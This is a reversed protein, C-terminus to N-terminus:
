TNGGTSGVVPIMGFLHRLINVFCAICNYSLILAREHLWQQQPLAVLIVCGSHTNTAKPIWCAIRTRKIKIQQRGWKVINKLKIEYITPKEL